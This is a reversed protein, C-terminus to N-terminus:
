EDDEPTCKPCDEAKGPHWFGRGVHGSAPVGPICEYTTTVPDEGPMGAKIAM